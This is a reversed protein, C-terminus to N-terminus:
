AKEALLIAFKQIDGMYQDLSDQREGYGKLEVVITRCDELEEMMSVM